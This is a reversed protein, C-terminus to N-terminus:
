RALDSMFSGETGALVTREQPELSFSLYCHVGNFLFLVSFSSAVVMSRAIPGTALQLGPGDDGGAGQCVM